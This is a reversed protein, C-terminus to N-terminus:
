NEIFEYKAKIGDIENLLGVVRKAEEESEVEAYFHTVYLDNSSLGDSGDFDRYFEVSPLIDEVKKIVDLDVDALLDNTYNKQIIEGIIEIKM